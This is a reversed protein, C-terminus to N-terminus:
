KDDSRRPPEARESRQEAKRGSAEVLRGDALRTNVMPTRAVRVPDDGQAVYVEGDPHDPHVEWLAVEGERLNSGGEVSITEAM